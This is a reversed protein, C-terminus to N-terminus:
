MGPSEKILQFHRVFMENDNFTIPFAFCRRCAINLASQTAQLGSNKSPSRQIIRNALKAESMSGLACKEERGLGGINEMSRARDSARESFYAKMETLVLFFPSQYRHIFSTTITSLPSPCRHTLQVCRGWKGYVMGGQKEDGTVGKSTMGESSRM